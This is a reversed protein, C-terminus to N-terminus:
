ECSHSTVVANNHRDADIVILRSFGKSRVKACLLTAEKDESHQQDTRLKYIAYHNVLPDNLVPCDAAPLGDILGMGSISPAIFPVAECKPILDWYSRNSQPIYILTQKKEPLPLAALKKLAGIVNHGKSLELSEQASNVLPVLQRAIQCVTTISAGGHMVRSCLHKLPPASNQDANSSAALACRITVNLAVMRWVAIGANFVVSALACIGLISIFIYAQKVLTSKVSIRNRIDRFFHECPQFAGVVGLLLCVSLWKPLDLFYIGSGGPIVMLAHPLIGALCAVLLVESEMTKKRSIADKLSKLSFAQRDYLQWAVFACLWFYYFPFFAAVLAVKIGSSFFRFPEIQAFGSGESTTLKAVVFLMVLSLVLSVFVTKYRWLGLRLFLYGYMALLLFMLSIKLFGILALLLPLLCILINDSASLEKRDAAAKPFLMVALSLVAFTFALGVSYTISIFQYNEGIRIKFITEIPLGILAVGFLAWFAYDRRLEISENSAALRERVVLALQLLMSLFFPLFIVPFGLQM